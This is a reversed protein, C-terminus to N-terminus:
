NASAGITAFASTNEHIPPRTDTTGTDIRQGTLWITAPRRPHNDGGRLVQGVMEAIERAHVFWGTCPPSQSDGIVGAAALAVQGPIGIGHSELIRRAISASEASECLVASSGHEVIAAAEGAACSDVTADPAYRAAVARLTQSVLHNGRSEIACIRRHGALMLDRALRSLGHTVDAIVAHTSFTRPERGVIVVPISRVVLDRLFGDHPQAAFDIVASFQNIFSPRMEAPADTSVQAAPNAGVIERALASSASHADCLLLWRDGNSAAPATGKVFTGRGISRELVGEAALDTLAKSLTKANAHFRRALAREGPLKGSLEGSAIAQRIKEALRQFKYSLRREPGNVAHIEQIADAGRNASSLDPNPNM